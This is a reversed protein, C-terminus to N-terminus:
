KRAAGGVYYRGRERTRTGGSSRIDCWLTPQGFCFVFDAVVLVDENLNLRVPLIMAYNRVIESPADTTMNPGTHADPM